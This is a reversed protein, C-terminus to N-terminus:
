KFYLGCGWDRGGKVQLLTWMGLGELRESTIFDVDGTGGVKVQLITWMGLGELRESTIFDM